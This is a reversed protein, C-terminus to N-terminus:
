LIPRYSYVNYGLNLINWPAMITTVNQNLDCIHGAQYIPMCVQQIIKVVVM